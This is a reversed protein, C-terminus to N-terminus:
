KAAVLLRTHAQLGKGEKAMNVLQEELKQMAYSLASTAVKLMNVTKNTNTLNHM